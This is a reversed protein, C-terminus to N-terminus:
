RRIVHLVSAIREAATAVDEAEGIRGAWSFWYSWVGDVEHSAYVDETRAPAMPNIVHLRPFLGTRSKLEVRFAHAELQAALRQLHDVAEATLTRSHASM